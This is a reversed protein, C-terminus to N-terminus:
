QTSNEEFLHRHQRPQCRLYQNPARVQGGLHAAAHWPWRPDYLITRALAILHADGTAVIAEAQEYGTILGVAVVPIDVVNRVARALPVQYSPGVPIAQAHHLGGSSVHIADCGRRELEKAFVLTEELNWGGEVWDTASVRVSVPRDKPFAARVADFVELPFRMRGELSGGYGDDRRNTLPSLFQHLLYGHAAHLQVVDIGLRAARLAAQVFAERVNHMDHHSLAVPTPHHENYAVASPAFTQWGLPEWPPFQGGGKWPVESSAKRGAHCLQIGMHMGSWQRIGELTKRMAAETEDNWLGVDAYTIRGEPLVASAEIFLIAAGSMALQGLHMLHWSNMCGNEASYQCMPAIVIRNPLHLKGIQLPQFLVPKSM